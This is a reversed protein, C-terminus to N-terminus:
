RKFGNLLFGDDTDVTVPLGPNVFDVCRVDTRLMPIDLAKAVTEAHSLDVKEWSGTVIAGAKKIFEMMNDSTHTCIVIDGQEFYPKDQSEPDAFVRAIGQVAGRKNGTGKALVNGVTRVKMTNTTGAVGIPVGALAVITEGTKVLESKIAMEEAVDFVENDGEFPKESLMPMTGWILNLQRCVMVDATVALVPFSPRCRSVMRSAFGTDTIVVICASELDLATAVAAFSIANTINKNINEHLNAYKDSYDIHNEAKLAIRAMMKVAEVPYQGGATEGSLMVVDTGDYIANAVDNAEARTPRPNQTMSELMHTATVVPKGVMNCKRIMEKQVIPVEEPPLEIGMDGRAVMIGDAVALISDLNDVGERNEIKAIIKMKAGGNDELVKRINIIDGATRVFSAAVYDFDNKIGFIIDKIDQETLSPLNISVNPVNVGKRAGLFGSNILVCKIDTKTINTVKMEILGDDIMVSDGVKLDKPLDPYTVSVKTNNGVIDKTTLTFEAGQELYVKDTDFTKIRIEPGKTDLLLPVYKGMAKRAEKLMGITKAAMEHTAHSFNIRAGDMGNKIMEKMIKVDNSAPGLTALIKTKRM